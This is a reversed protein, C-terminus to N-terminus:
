PTKQQQLFRGLKSATRIVLLENTLSDIESQVIPNLDVVRHNFEKILQSVDKWEEIQILRKFGKRYLSIAENVFSQNSATESDTKQTDLAFLSFSTLLDISANEGKMSIRLSSCAGRLHKANDIEAGLGDPPNSIFDLYKKVIGVNELKGGDTDKPLYDTRAYKSTFYYVINERFVKDGGQAGLECLDSMYSISRRRKEAVEKEIFEILTYLARNLISDEEKNRAMETQDNAAKDGLYRKLYARFHELYNEESREQFKIEIFRGAYDITYDDIIGVISMRYIARQTDSANRIKSYNSKVWEVLTESLDLEEEYGTSRTYMFLLREFFEEADSSFNYAARVLKENFAEYGEEVIKQSIETVTRNTFGIRLTHIEQQGHQLRTKLGPSSTQKLWALYNRDPCEKRLVQRAFSLIEEAETISFNQTANEYSRLNRDLDLLGINVRQTPNESYPGNLYIYRDNRLSMSILQPFRDQIKRKLVNVNFNDEYQVEDLLENIIEKERDTGRFANELFDLNARKDTSSYLITCIAPYGDRGARGAEQYFSEVSNPFTYHLTYRINPKDIGMGFAKTSIMLNTRNRIFDEQNEVSKKAEENVTDPTISDDDGSSFFTGIKLYELESLYEKVALVSNKLTSSKTPCFLIGANRYNGNTAEYFRESVEISGFASEFASMKRPMERFLNSVLGYKVKSLEKEREYFPLNPNVSDNVPVIEFKLEKRDIAEAPLTIIADERMQLERQVDALVDFSATATLGFLTLEGSRVACFRKMNKALNLYTHRFDHGWESVCHAEDIVAYSYFVGRSKCMSLATRFRDIQFREPSVFVILYKGISLNELHEEREDTTNFSNIYQVKTFGSEVLKDYQDKMLSNIPDVVVTVGPQLIACLQYTLSKGGGTPLLGIVDKRQLARNIIALQGPRFDVKRFVNKLFYTIAERQADSVFEFRQAYKREGNVLEEYDIVEGLQEYVVTRDTLVKSHFGDAVNVTSSLRVSAEGHYGVELRGASSAIRYEILHMPEETDVVLANLRAFLQNLDEIALTGLAEDDVFAISQGKTLDLTGTFIALLASVQFQASRNLDRLIRYTKLYASGLDSAIEGENLNSFNSLLKDLHEADMEEFPNCAFRLKIEGAEHAVEVADVGLHRRLIGTSLNVSARTPEGRTVINWAVKHLPNVGEVDMFRPLGTIGVAISNAYFAAVAEDGVVEALLRNLEDVYYGAKINL